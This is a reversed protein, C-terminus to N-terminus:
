ILSVSVTTAASLGRSLPGTTKLPGPLNFKLGRGEVVAHHHLLRERHVVGPCGGRGDGDGGGRGGGRMCLYLNVFHHLDLYMQVRKLKAIYMM